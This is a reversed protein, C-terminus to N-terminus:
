QQLPKGADHSVRAHHHEEFGFQVIMDIFDMPKIGMEAAQHFICTAPTLGPLSNNEIIVVREVGTPSQQGTQYFCDIRSYGKCGLAKYADVMIQQVLQLTEQPLPAPTQNEGAGPLFKEEISLIDSTTVAQSPILAQPNNNGIVGVTLEMGIICEEVLAYEKDSAFLLEISKELDATRKVKQVMVSCGDNHPKVILPLPMTTCIEKVIQEKDARWETNSILRAQPVEFGKSRLFQTTKFKDMCLASTLVSSGNYPLGLMELTGQISGDEGHGGHLAIFVFDTITPLDSWQLKAEPQLLEEIEKISGRVLQSHTLKYLEMNANVFIPMVDYKHPSLKYTVNRGSELSIEKENSAGGLLVAIRMKQEAQVHKADKKEQTLIADLMGYHELETEILHNIVKTHSMNIEAGQRFLFSAPGMGSLTNPDVIAIRDDNTYFGDIRGINTIGLAHMAQACIGQIRAIIEPTTRAPTFKSARGPMYKQEYDHFHTGAEPVIETPPLPILTGTKYDTLIICSFEMGELKEQVLVDQHIGPYIESATILAQHLDKNDFVVSIGLSSGEKCPKIIYPLTVNHKELRSLIANKDFQEIQQATVVIDKPIDVGAAALFDRQMNKDMGLASSFVKSGLYPIGLVEFFGQLTGDEAYRGHTAIYAFDILNKLSDWTICQAENPLRHEFDSTKGRHLFHWPLLYLAGNSTQYLPIVDYRVTDLHDCVTRGSNFSVEKEITRGGMFVGVRLKSM